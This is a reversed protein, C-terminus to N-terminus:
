YNRKRLPLNGLMGSLNGKRIHTLGRCFKVFRSGHANIQPVYQTRQVWHVREM